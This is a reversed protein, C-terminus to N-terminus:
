KLPDIKFATKRKSTMEWDAILEDHHIECWAVVLKTQASPFAGGIIKGELDFIAEMGQYRAHFHPPNHDGYYMQIIIGYFMSIIPM